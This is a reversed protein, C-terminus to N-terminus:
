LLIPLLFCITFAIALMLGASAHVLRKNIRM